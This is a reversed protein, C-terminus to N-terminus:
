EITQARLGDDAAIVLVVVDTLRGASARMASFAAHGPTDFFTVPAGARGELQVRFAGLRQTIGAVEGAATNTKRLADLLTTKGHDVHGMVSVVPARVPLHAFQEPNFERTRRVDWDKRKVRAVAVGLELCVLEATDVDLHSEGRVDAEGLKELQQLVADVKQKAARALAAATIGTPPLSVVERQPLKARAAARKKATASSSFTGSSIAVLEDIRKRAAAKEEPTQERIVAALAPQTGFPLLAADASQQQEAVAATQLDPQTDLQQQQQQAALPDTSSVVAAPTTRAFM